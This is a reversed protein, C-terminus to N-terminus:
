RLKRAARTMLLVQEYGTKRNAM